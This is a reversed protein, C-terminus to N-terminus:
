DRISAFVKEYSASLLEPLVKTEGVVPMFNTDGSWRPVVHWHLHDPIGAGAVLGLNMGLNFGDPQMAEKLAKICRQILRQLDLLEDEKLNELDGEHRFPAVMLHGSNYPYTNLIAFSLETRALIYVREDDGEKPKECFICGQEGGERASGIYEMRWPAWLREM